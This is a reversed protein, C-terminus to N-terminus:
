GVGDLVVAVPLTLVFTAGEGAVSQAVITGGHKEVIRKTV